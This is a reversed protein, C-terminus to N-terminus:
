RRGIPITHCQKAKIEIQTPFLIYYIFYLFLFLLFGIQDITCKLTLVDFLRRQARRSACLYSVPQRHQWLYQFKALLPKQDAFLVFYAFLFGSILEIEGCMLCKLNPRNPKSMKPIWKHNEIRCFSWNMERSLDTFLNNQM